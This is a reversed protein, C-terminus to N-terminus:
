FRAPHLTLRRARGALIARRWPPLDPEWKRCLRAFTEEAKHRDAPPLDSFPNSGKQKRPGRRQFMGPDQPELASILQQILPQWGQRIAAQLIALALDELLTTASAPLTALVHQKVPADRYQLREWSSDSITAHAM